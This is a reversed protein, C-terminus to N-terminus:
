GAQAQRVLPRVGACLAELEAILQPDRGGVFKLVADTRDLADSARVTALEDALADADLPEGGRGFSLLLHREDRALAEFHDLRAKAQKYETDARRRCLDSCFERRRGRGASQQFQARCAPRACWSAMDPAVVHETHPTAVDISRLPQTEPM